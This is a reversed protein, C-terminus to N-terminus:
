GNTTEKGHHDRMWRYDKVTKEFGDALAKAAMAVRHLWVIVWDAPLSKGGRARDLLFAGSSFVLVAVLLGAAFGRAMELTM